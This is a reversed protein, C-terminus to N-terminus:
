QRAILINHTKILFVITDFLFVNIRKKVFAVMRTPCMSSRSMDYPKFFFRFRSHIVLFGEQKTM